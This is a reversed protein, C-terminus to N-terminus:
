RGTLKITGDFKGTLIVTKRGFRYIECIILLGAIRGMLRIKYDQPLNIWMVQSLRLILIKLFSIFTYM